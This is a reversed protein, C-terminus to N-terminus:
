PLASEQKGGNGNIVGEDGPQVALREDFFGTLYFLLSLLLPVLFIATLLGPGIGQMVVYVLYVAGGAPLYISKKLRYAPALHAGFLLFHLLMSFMTAFAAGFLGESPVLYVNLAFNAAFVSMM